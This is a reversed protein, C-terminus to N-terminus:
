ISDILEEQQTPQTHVYSQKREIRRRKERTDLCAYARVCVCLVCVCCVCVVCVCVCGRVYIGFTSTSTWARSRPLAPKKTRNIILVVCCVLVYSCVNIYLLALLARNAPQGTPLFLWFNGGQGPRVVANSFGGPLGGPVAPVVSMTTDIFNCENSKM